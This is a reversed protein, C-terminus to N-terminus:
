GKVLLSTEREYPLKTLNCTDRNYEFCPVKGKFVNFIFDITDSAKSSNGFIVSDLCNNSIIIEINKSIQSSPDITEFVLRCEDEVSYDIGKEENTLKIFPNMAYILEKKVFTDLETIDNASYNIQDVKLINFGNHINNLDSFYKSRDYICCGLRYRYLLHNYANFRYKYLEDFNFVLCVGEYNEAYTEWMYQSKYGLSFSIEFFDDLHYETSDNSHKKAWSGENPDDLAKAHTAYFCINRNYPAEEKIIKDKINELKTFHYIKDPNKM